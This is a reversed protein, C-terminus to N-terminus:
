VQHHCRPGAGGCSPRHGTSGGPCRSFEEKLYTYGKGYGFDEIGKVKAKACVAETCLREAWDATDIVLTKCPVNGKRVEEVEDLLMAWSTPAPLRAM